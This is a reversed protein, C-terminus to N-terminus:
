QEITFVSSKGVCYEDDSDWARINFNSFSPGLHGFDTVIWDYSVTGNQSDFNEIILGRTVRLNGTYLRLDVVGSSNEFTFSLTLSFSM